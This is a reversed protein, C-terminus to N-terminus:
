VPKGSYIYKAHTGSGDHNSETIVQSIYGMLKLRHLCKRADTTKVRQQVDWATVSGEHALIQLIEWQKGKQKMTPPKPDTYTAFNFLPGFEPLDPKKHPNM